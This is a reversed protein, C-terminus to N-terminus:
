RERMSSISRIAASSYSRPSGLRKMFVGNSACCRGGGISAGTKVFSSSRDAQRCSRRRERRRPRGPRAVLWRRPGAGLARTGYAAYLGCGAHWVHRVLARGEAEGVFPLLHMAAATGTIAHTFVIAHLRSDVNALFVRGFLTAVEGASAAPNDIAPWHFARAFAIEGELARRAAVISGGNRRRDAPLFPLRSLSRIEVRM